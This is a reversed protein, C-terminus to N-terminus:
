APREEDDEGDAGADARDADDAGGADTTVATGTEPRADAGAVVGETDTGDAAVDTASYREAEVREEVQEEQTPATAPATPRAPAPSTGVPPPAAVTAAPVTADPSSGEGRPPAADHTRDPTRGEARNKTQLWRVLAYVLGAVALIPILFKLLGWVLAALGVFVWGLGRMIQGLLWVVGTGVLLAILGFVVLEIIEQVSRKM